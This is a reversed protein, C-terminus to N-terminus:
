FLALRRTKPRSRAMSAEALATATTEKRAVLDRARDITLLDINMTESFM